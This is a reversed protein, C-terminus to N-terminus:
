ERKFSRILSLSKSRIMMWQCLKGRDFNYYFSNGDGINDTSNCRPAGSSGPKPCRLVLIDEKDDLTTFYYEHVVAGKDTSGFTEYYTLGCPGQRPEPHSIPKINALQQSGSTLFPGSTLGIVIVESSCPDRFGVGCRITEKTLGSYGPLVARISIVNPTGDNGKSLGEIYNRPIVYTQENMVFTRPSTDISPTPIPLYYRGVAGLPDPPEACVISAFLLGATISLGFGARPVCGRRRGARYTRMNQSTRNDYAEGDSLLNSDYLREQYEQTQRLQM